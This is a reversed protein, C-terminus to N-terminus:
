VIDDWNIEDWDSGGGAANGADKTNHHLIYSNPKEGAWFCKDGVTIHQVEIEGVPVVSAVAEWASHSVGGEDRRVAVSKGHVNPALVLGDTTPIPATDSCVLSVGSVTTLRFGQAKKRKSFSVIGVGAQLSKQDSLQMESGVVIDGALTGCPLRSAIQVCGGGSDGGGYDAGAFLDFDSGDSFDAGSFTEGVAGDGIDSGKQGTTTEKHSTTCDGNPKCITTDTTTKEWGGKIELGALAKLTGTIGVEGTVKITDTTTIITLGSSTQCIETAHSLSTNGSVSNSSDTTKCVLGPTGGGAPIDMESPTLRRM